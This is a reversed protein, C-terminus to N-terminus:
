AKRRASADTYSAVVTITTGVQAQGLHLQRRDRESQAGDASGSTASRAWVTQTALTNSAMLIQDQTATGSISVSGKPLDNVNAM